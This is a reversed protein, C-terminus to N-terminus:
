ESAPYASYDWVYGSMQSDTRLRFSSSNLLDLHYHVGEEVIINWYWAEGERTGSIVRCDLGARRCMAAYVNAFARSDGVGHRLLSYAPTISTQIKYDYREMLFSYLQSYKEANAADGSVYLEASTFVPEVNEQMSRLAERSSQYTFALEIIREAGNDPYVAATVQPIEMILDPYANSYDEIMQSLDTDEYNSVLIVVGTSCERLAATIAETAEDMNECRQIRSIQSPTRSYSIELAVAPKGASTGLDYEIKDMAYAGIADYKKIYATAQQMYEDLQAQTLDPISLTSEEVGDAVLDILAQQLQDYNKVGRIEQEPRANQEQHPTVSSYAGDMWLDCGCLLMCLILVATLRIGYRKM